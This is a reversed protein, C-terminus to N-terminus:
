RLPRLPFLSARLEIEVDCTIALLDAGLEAADYTPEDCISEPPPSM